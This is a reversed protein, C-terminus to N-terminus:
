QYHPPKPNMNRIRDVEISEITGSIRAYDKQLKALLRAQEVVVENLQEVQRELHAVHTELKDFRAPTSLDMASAYCVSRTRQYEPACACPQPEARRVAFLTARSRLM